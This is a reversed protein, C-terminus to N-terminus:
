FLSGFGVGSAPVPSSPGAIVVNVVTSPLSSDFGNAIATALVDVYTGIMAVGRLGSIFHPIGSNPIVNGIGTGSGVGTSIVNAVALSMCNSIGSAVALALSPSFVGVLGSGSFSAVMSPNLVATSLFATGTGVGSGATGVNATQVILTPIYTSLASALGQALAPIYPGSLGAGYLSALFVPTATVTNVPVLNM